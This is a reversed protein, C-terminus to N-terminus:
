KILWKIAVFTVAFINRVMFCINTLSLNFAVFVNFQAVLVIEAVRYHNHSFGDLVHALLSNGNQADM